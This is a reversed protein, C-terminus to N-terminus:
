RTPRPSSASARPSRSTSTPRRPAPRPLLRGQARALVARIAAVTTTPRAAPEPRRRPDRRRDHRLAPHRRATSARPHPHHDHTTEKTRHVLDDPRHVPHNPHSTADRRSARPPRTSASSPSCAPACPSSRPPRRPPPPEPRRRPRRALHVGDTLVLVRDALLIAEDVDHTVLLVAPRTAPACSAAAPAHMRIRTLADLAGFPEDLLLLEPERVLARALSARQAEGGSLTKPWDDEHGDLGVERSSRAVRTAAGPRRPPRARRQRAGDGVAAAPPGPVGGLPARARPHPGRGRRRARRAGAPAHEQGLRQPRAPRRVRGQPHRPRHGRAGGPRRLAPARRDHAGRVAARRDDAGAREALTPPDLVEVARTAM